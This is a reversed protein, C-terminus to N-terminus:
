KRNRSQHSFMRRWALEVAYERKAEERRAEVRKAEEGLFGLREAENKSSLTLNKSLMM